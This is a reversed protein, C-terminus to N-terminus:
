LNRLKSHFRLSDYTPAGICARSSCPPPVMSLSNVLSHCGSEYFLGKCCCKRCDWCPHETTHGYLRSLLAAEIM